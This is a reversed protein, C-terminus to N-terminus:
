DDVLLAIDGHSSTEGDEYVILPGYLGKAVQEWANNHAHYWFISADRLPFRYNFSYGPAVADQALRLVGDM